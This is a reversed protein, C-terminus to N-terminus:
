KEVPTFIAFGEALEDAATDSLAAGSTLSINFARYNWYSWWSDNVVVINKTINGPRSHGSKGEGNGNMVDLAVWGEPRYRSGSRVVILSGNPIDAKSYLPTAIFQKLLSVNTSSQMTNMESKNESNYFAFRTFGIDKRIYDAPNYDEHELIEEPTATAPDFEKEPPYASVTVSFPVAIAKDAADKMAAIAKDAYTYESPTYTVESLDCGTLAKAFTLATLYRGKDYSMHYGDRTITDGMYSTRLNQVATGNPVITIFDPNLLIKKKVVDLIADYMTQQNNDYNNFANLTCDAQYAWTMHWVLNAQPCNGKIIETLTNLYPDFTDELGSKSSGQQLTVFDWDHSKLADLPRYSETSTWEGETNIYYKYSASNDTFRSAHTELVCGSIYLNGLVIEDYGVDKLIGYLYQMADVSFSNGVALISISKEEQESTQDKGEDGSTEASPMECACVALAVAAFFVSLKDLKM